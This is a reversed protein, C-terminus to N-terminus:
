PPHKIRKTKRRRFNYIGIKDLIYSGRIAGILQQVTYFHQIIDLKHSWKSLLDATGNVERYVHICEFHELKRGIDQIQQIIQQCRWPISITNCIYKCLIESDVEM